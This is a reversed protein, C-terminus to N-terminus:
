FRFLDYRKSPEWREHGNMCRGSELVAAYQGQGGCPSRGQFRYTKRIKNLNKETDPDASEM